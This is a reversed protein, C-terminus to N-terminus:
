ASWMRVTACVHSYSYLVVYGDVTSLWLDKKPNMVFKPKEEVDVFDLVVVDPVNTSPARMTEDLTRGSGSAGVERTGRSTMKEVYSISRRQLSITKYCSLVLLGSTLTTYQDLSGYEKHRRGDVGKPIILRM